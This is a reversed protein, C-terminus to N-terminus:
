QIRVENASDAVSTSHVVLQERAMLVMRAGRCAAEKDRRDPSMPADRLSDAVPEFVRLTNQM